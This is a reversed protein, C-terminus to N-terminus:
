NGDAAKGLKLKPSGVRTARKGLRRTYVCLRLSEGVQRNAVAVVVMEVM